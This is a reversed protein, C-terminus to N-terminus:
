RRNNLYQEITRRHEAVYECSPEAGCKRCQIDYPSNLTNCRPCTYHARIEDLWKKHGVAKIRELNAWLEIRHPMGIQFWILEGCPYEECESCFDVGREAACAAIRCNECYPLREESRCGFCAAEDETFHAREALERLRERDETTYIFWSCAACYLGCVAAFTKDSDGTRGKDQQM